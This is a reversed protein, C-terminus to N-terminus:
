LAAASAPFTERFSSLFFNLSCLHYIMPWWTMLSSFFARHSSESKHLLCCFICYITASYWLWCIFLAYSLSLFIVSYSFPLFNAYSSYYPFAFRTSFYYFLLSTSFYYYLILSSSLSLRSGSNYTFPGKDPTDLPLLLMAFVTLMSM